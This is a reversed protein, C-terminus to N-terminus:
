PICPAERLPRNRRSRESVLFFPAGCVSPGCPKGTPACCAVQIRWSSEVGRSFLCGRRRMCTHCIRVYIVRKSHVFYCAYCPMACCRMASRQAAAHSSSPTGETRRAPTNQPVECKTVCSRGLALYLEPGSYLSRESM